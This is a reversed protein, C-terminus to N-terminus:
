ISAVFSCICSSGCYTADFQIAAAETARGRGQRSSTISPEAALQRFLGCSLM